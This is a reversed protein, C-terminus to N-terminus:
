EDAAAIEGLEARAEREFYSKHHEYITNFDLTVKIALKSDRAPQNQGNAIM